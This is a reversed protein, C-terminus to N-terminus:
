PDTVVNMALEQDLQSLAALAPGAQEVALDCKNSMAFTFHIGLGGSTGRARTVLRDNRSPHRVVSALGRGWNIPSTPRIGSLCMATRSAFNLCHQVATKRGCLGILEKPEM